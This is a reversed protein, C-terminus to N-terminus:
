EEVSARGADLMGDVDRVNPGAPQLTPMVIRSFGEIKDIVSDSTGTITFADLLEDSIEKSAGALDGKWCPEAIM